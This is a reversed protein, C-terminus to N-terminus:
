LTLILDVNNIVIIPVQAVKLNIINNTFILFLKLNKQPPNLISKTFSFLCDEYALNKEKVKAM